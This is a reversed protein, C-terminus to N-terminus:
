RLLGWAGLALLAAGAVAAAAYLGVRDHRRRIARLERAHFVAGEVAPASLPPAGLTRRYERARPCYAYEALDSPSSFSSPRGM